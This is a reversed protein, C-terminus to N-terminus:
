EIMIVSINHGPNKEKLHCSRRYSYFNLPNSYTDINLDDISYINQAALKQKVYSILDFLYHHAKKSPIFFQQNNKDENIFEEFFEPGTEYSKQHITPGIVANIKLNKIKLNLAMNNMAKIVEEIIGNKAGRWGAHIVGIIASEEDYVIIPCCDATYVGLVINKLNTVLGDAQPLNEKSYIKEKDDIVIVKNSHIQNLLLLNNYNFDQDKLRTKLAIKDKFAGNESRYKGFFHYKIQNM